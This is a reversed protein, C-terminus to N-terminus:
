WLSKEKSSSKNVKLGDDLDKGMVKKAVGVVLALGLLGVATGLISDTADSM